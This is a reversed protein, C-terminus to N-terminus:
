EVHAWKLKRCIQYVHDQNVKFQAAIEAARAGAARLRRIARVDDDTLKSSAHAEGRQHKGLVERSHRLNDATSVWELNEVRNDSKIGNKHNIVMGPPKSTGWTQLVIQHVLPAERVCGGRFHAQM